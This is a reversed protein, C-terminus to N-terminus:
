LIAHFYGLESDTSRTDIQYRGDSRLLYEVTQYGEDVWWIGVLRDDARCIQGFAVLFGLAIWLPLLRLSHSVASQTRPWSSIKNRVM